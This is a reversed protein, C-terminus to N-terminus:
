RDGAPSLTAAAVTVQPDVSTTPVRPGSTTPSLVSANEAGAQRQEGAQYEGASDLLAGVATVALGAVRNMWAGMKGLPDPNTM